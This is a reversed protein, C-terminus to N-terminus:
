GVHRGEVPLGAAAWGSFGGEMSEVKDFGQALLFATADQSSFGHYCSLVYHQAPNLVDLRLQLENIPLSTSGTPHQGEYDWPMRIDLLTVDEGAEMQAYVEEPTTQPIVRPRQYSVSRPAPSSSSSAPQTPQSSKEQAAKERQARLAAPSNEESSLGSLKKKIKNFISM